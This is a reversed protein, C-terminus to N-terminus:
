NKGNTQKEKKGGIGEKSLQQPLVIAMLLGIAVWIHMIYLTSFTQYQITEAFLYALIALAAVGSSTLMNVPLFGLTRIALSIAFLAFLIFGIIGLEVLIEITLNNVVLWGGTPDMVNNQAYPGFQGAGIGFIVRGKDDKLLDLAQTRVKAREDGGGELGTNQLQKTYAASGKKGGTVQTDVPPKALYTIVLFSLVFSIFVTAIVLLARRLSTFKLIVSAGLLFVVLGILAAIGGRSVTLFISTSFLLLLGVNTKRDKSGHLLRSLLISVPLLLYSCYYLPELATSQIRPFGFVQWSYRERMGTAWNPLGLLNGLYQYAGFLAVLTASVLLGKIIDDLYEKRYIIAIALGTTITFVTFVIVQAARGFNIALLGTIVVWALFALLTGITFNLRFTQTRKIAILYAARLIILGAAVFSLRLTVGFVDMSPIREFPLLFVLAVLLYRDLNKVVKSFM